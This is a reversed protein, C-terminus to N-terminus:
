PRSVETCRRPKAQVELLGNRMAISVGIRGSASFAREELALEQLLRTATDLLKQEAPSFAPPPKQPAVM